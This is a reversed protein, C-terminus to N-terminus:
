KKYIEAMKCYECVANQKGYANFNCPRTVWEGSSLWTDYDQIDRILLDIEENSISTDYYRDRTSKAELFLLRSRSVETNWKLNQSLLYSYMALQRLMNSMRGEDDTKEIESKKKASGTKFDTVRAEKPGIKEILDIKGYITLNPFRNDKVSISKENERSEAVQPLDEEVWNKVIKAVEHDHNTCELIEEPTPMRNLKLITDIANHARNGFELSESLPEPLQLLNRFYWKWPCEFFNNLLSVSVLKDEYEDKVLNVLDGLDTKHKPIENNSVYTSINEQAIINEVEQVSVKDFLTDTIEAVIHSLVKDRGEYSSTAYSITCFKKARTIAVYLERKLVEEDKAEILNGISEPLSFGGKKGREFSAEDMHAIWAYDFELGKSAHLTLVKVGENKGFVALPIKSGYSELRAITELLDKLSVKPNRETESLVIHLLTRVVEVRLVLAEHDQASEILLENGIKQVISYVDHTSVLNTWDRLRALWKKETTNESFLSTPKSTDEALNFTKANISRLFKHADLPLIGSLPDFLTSALAVNDFPDVVVRLVNILSQAEKIEFLNFSEGSSAKIGLDKLVRLATAVHKNKPVLMACSNPDIDYKEIHEKIDRGAAIIEDREFNCEFLRLPYEDKSISKLEADAMKSTLLTHAVDLIRQTSRYNETLTILKSDSFTNRFGEFYALSAGGFGYILQRDDGVVFINPKEVRGWVRELFENQLKSSDQHEDVLVYLFREKIDDRADDSYEVINVLNELVDDYDLYNGDKKVKEYKKYFEAVELTRHLGEIKKVIEKKLEGKSEGRSSISAPDNEIKEIENKVETAFDHSRIGDRKLVSILSKLDKFYRTNDARPRLHEWNHSNLIQDFIIITSGDDLLKPPTDLDLVHHYEEIMKMGFSHFTFINIKAGASGIYRRLRERMASVGSNTFTLCLVGDAPTDTKTLINAIRLALVQTKGTGPGAVVMVPGDITDVAQKQASNLKKYESEFM